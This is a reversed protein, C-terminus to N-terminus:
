ALPLCRELAASEGELVLAQEDRGSARYAGAAAHRDAIEGQLILEIAAVSLERRAVEGTGLGAVGGAISHGPAVALHSAPDVAPADGLDAAEANDIAAIASRMASVVVTDRAKM